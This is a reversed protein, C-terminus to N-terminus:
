AAVLPDAPSIVDPGVTTPVLRTMPTSESWNTEPYEPEMVRVAVGGFRTVGFLVLQDMRGVIVPPPMTGTTAGSAAVETAM